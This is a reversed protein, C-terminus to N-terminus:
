RHSLIENEIINKFRADSIYHDAILRGNYILNFVSYVSPANQAEGPTRLETVKINLKHAKAISSLSTISRAVWPCQNSYVINLGSYKNLQKNWDKFKPLNGGRLKLALLEFRDSKEVTEFGNKLFVGKDAM